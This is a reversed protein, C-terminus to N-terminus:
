KTQQWNFRAIIGDREISSNTGDLQVNEGSYVEQEIGANAGAFLSISLLSIFMSTGLIIKKM